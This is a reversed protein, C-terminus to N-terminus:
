APTAQGSTVQENAVGNINFDSQNYQNAEEEILKLENEVDDIYPVNSVITKRSIIGNLAVLNQVLETNNTPVNDIFHVNISYIDIVKNIKVLYNAILNFRKNLARKFNKQKETVNQALSQFKLKIAIGSTAAGNYLESDMLNVTNSFKHIDREVRKKLTEIFESNLNKILWEADGNEDFSLIRSTRIEEAKEEDLEGINVLKLYANTFDESDDLSLSELLDYTDILPIVKEFDGQAYTNNKFQVIPCRGMYHPITQVATFTIDDYVEYKNLNIDREAYYTKVEIDDYISVNIAEKNVDIPYTDIVIAEKINPKISNDEIIIVNRPDIEAIQYVADEDLYHLEYAEGFIAMTLALSLNHSDIDNIKLIKDFELYNDDNLPYSLKMGKGLFYNSTQTCIYDAFSHPVRNTLAGNPRAARQLISNKNKYYNELLNFRSNRMINKKLYQRIEEIQIIEM